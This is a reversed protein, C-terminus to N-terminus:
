RRAKWVALNIGDNAQPQDQRRLQTIVKGRVPWPIDAASGTVESAKVPTEASVEAPTTTTAQALWVKQQSRGNGGRNQDRAACLRPRSYALRRSRLGARRATKAGPV